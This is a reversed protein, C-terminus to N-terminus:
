ASGSLVRDDEVADAGIDEGALVGGREQVPERDGAQAESRGADQRSCAVQGGVVDLTTLLEAALQRLELGDGLLDGVDVDGRAQDGQSGVVGRPPQGPADVRAVVEGHRRVPGADLAEGRQVDALVEMAPHADVLGVRQM